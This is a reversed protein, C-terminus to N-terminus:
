KEHHKAEQKMRKRVSGIFDAEGSRIALKTLVTVVTETEEKTLDQSLSEIWKGLVDQLVTQQTRAYPTVFLLKKRRDATDTERRLFNKQELLQISRTIAAKDLDLEAALEEQSRGEEEYLRLLLVYESYTLNWARCADVIYAKANRHLRGFSHAIALNDQM